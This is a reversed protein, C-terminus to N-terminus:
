GKRNVKKLSIKEKEKIEFGGQGLMGLQVRDAKDKGSTYNFPGQEIPILDRIEEIKIRYSNRKGSREIRESNDAKLDIVEIIKIKKKYHNTTNNKPESRHEENSSSRKKDSKIDSQIKYSITSNHLSLSRIINNVEPRENPDVKLIDQILEIEETTFNKSFCMSKKEM